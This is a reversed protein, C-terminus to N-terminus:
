DSKKDNRSMSIGKPAGDKGTVGTNNNIVYDQNAANENKYERFCCLYCNCMLFGFNCYKCCVSNKLDFEDDNVIGEVIGMEEKKDIGAFPQHNDIKFPLFHEKTRLHYGPGCKNTWIHMTAGNAPEVVVRDFGHKEAHTLVYKRLMTGVGKGEYGKATGGASVHLTKGTIVSGIGIDCNIDLACKYYLYEAFKFMYYLKDKGKVPEKFHGNYVNLQQNFLFGALDNNNNRDRCVLCLGNNIGNKSGDIFMERLEKEKPKLLKVCPNRNKFADIAIELCEEYENGPNMVDIYFDNNNNIKTKKNYNRRKM